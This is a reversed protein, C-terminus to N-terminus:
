CRLALAHSLSPRLFAGRQGWSPGMRRGLPSWTNPWERTSAIPVYTHEGSMLWKDESWAGRKEGRAGREESRTGKGMMGGREERRAGRVERVAVVAVFWAVAAIRVALNTGWTIMEAM